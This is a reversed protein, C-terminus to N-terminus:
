VYPTPLEPQTVIWLSTMTYLIMVVTVAYQSRLAQIRSPFTEFAISHAVWIAVVHGLLVSVVPVAQLWGPVVLSNAVGGSFPTVAAEVVLPSLGLFYTFYHALHYAAAIALLSPAFLMMISDVTLYTPATRRSFAAAAYFVGIFVAYGAVLVLAYFVHAPVGAPVVLDAADTWLPTSTLGDFTTAWVLAVVFGVESTDGLLDERLGTGPLGVRYGDDTRRVPAVAGYLRFIRALPDVREFWTASGFLGVGIATVAVYAVVLTALARPEDAVASTVEVYVLALLFVVSPWAGLKAPYDRLGSGLPLTLTRFPDVAPWTNGVLYTTMAYGAWWGVWVVLIAASELPARPGLFGSVVVLLLGGLGVLRGLWTLARRPLSVPRAYNHVYEIFERDTVFSALLFSAGVVGGGTFLFLWAPVSLRDPAANSLGGAHALVGSTGVALAAAAVVTWAAVRLGRKRGDTRAASRAGRRRDVM